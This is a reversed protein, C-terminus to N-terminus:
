LPVCIQIYDTEGSEDANVVQLNVGFTGTFLGNVGQVPAQIAKDALNLYPGSYQFAGVGVLTDTFACEQFEDTTSITVCYGASSGITSTTPSLITEFFTQLSGETSITDGYLINLVFQHKKFPPPCVLVSSIPTITNFFLTYSTSTTLFVGNQDTQSVGIKALAKSLTQSSTKYPPQTRIM